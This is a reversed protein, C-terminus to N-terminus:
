RGHASSSLLVNPNSPQRARAAASPHLRERKDRIRRAGSSVQPANAPPGVHRLPRGLVATSPLGHVGDFRRYRQPPRTLCACRARSPRTASAHLKIPNVFRRALTSVAEGPSDPEGCRGVLWSTGGERARLFHSTESVSEANARVYTHADCDQPAALRPTRLSRVHRLGALSGRDRRVRPRSAGEGSRRPVKSRPNGGFAGVRRNKPRSIRGFAGSGGNEPRSTRGFAGAPQVCDDDRTGTM